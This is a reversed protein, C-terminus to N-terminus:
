TAHRIGMEGRLPSPDPKGVVIKIPILVRVDRNVGTTTNKGFGLSRYPHDASTHKYYTKLGNRVIKDWLTYTELWPHNAV